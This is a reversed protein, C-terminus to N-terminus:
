TELLWANLAEEDTVTITRTTPNYTGITDLEDAKPSLMSSTPYQCVMRSAAHEVGAEWLGRADRDAYQMPGNIWGELYVLLRDEGMALGVIASRPAVMVAFSKRRRPVYLTLELREDLYSPREHYDPAAGCDRCRPWGFDPPTTTV